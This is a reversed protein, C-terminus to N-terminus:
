AHSLGEDTPRSATPLDREIHVLPHNYRGYREIRFGTEDGADNLDEATFAFRASRRSDVEAFVDQPTLGVYMLSDASM